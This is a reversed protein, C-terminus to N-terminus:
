KWAPVLYEEVTGLGNGAGVKEGVTIPVVHSRWPNSPNPPPLPNYLPWPASGVMWRMWTGLNLIRSALGGCRWSTNSLEVCHCSGSRRILVSCLAYRMYKHCLACVKLRKEKIKKNKWCHQWSKQTHKITCLRTERQLHFDMTVYNGPLVTDYLHIHVSRLLCHLM